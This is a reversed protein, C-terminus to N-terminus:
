AYGWDYAASLDRDSAGPHVVLETTGEVARVIALLSELDHHGASAIGAARDAFAIGRAAAIRRARRAFVNMAHLGVRRAGRAEATGSDVPVRVWPISFERALDLVLEFLRPLAHLHQHSNLHAIPLGTGAVAEIQARLERRVEGLDIRGTFWRRSFAGFNRHFRGAPGVLSPVKAPDSLPREEVLALHVGVALRPVSRLAEAAHEMASGCAVVSCATVIGDRHARIAADTMGRHLGVDDAVVLLRKL